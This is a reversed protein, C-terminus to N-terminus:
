QRLRVILRDGERSARINSTNRLAEPLLIHRRYPGARVILEDGSLTLGLAERPLGPVSIAVFPESGDSYEIPVITSAPAAPQMDQYLAEGLKALDAMSSVPATMPLQLVPRPAWTQEAAAIVDQQQAVAAVFRTDAVDTPWLPGAIIADVALGHLQLAPLALLAEDRAVTDPRLVYRAITREPDLITDRMRELQVRSDQINNYWEFPLLATPVLARGISGTSRGPGRDLGFLLRMGWRFSDPITLTRLLIDHPGADIVILDYQAASQRQVQELALMLDLGPVLPLEDESISVNLGAPVRARAQEWFAGLHGLTDLAWVDLRPAISQPTKAVPVQLVSSISHSPGVSLLLTHQGSTAAVSATAAAAFPIGLGANGTCIIILM